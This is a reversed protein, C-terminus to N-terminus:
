GALAVDWGGTRCAGQESLMAAVLHRGFQGRRPCRFGAGDRPSVLTANSHFVTGRSLQMSVPVLLTAGPGRWVAGVDIGRLDTVREAVDKDEGGVENVFLTVAQGAGPKAGQKAAFQFTFRQTCGPRGIRALLDALHQTFQRDLAGAKDGADDAAICMAVGGIKLEQEQREGMAAM